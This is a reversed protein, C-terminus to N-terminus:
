SANKLISNLPQAFVGRIMPEFENLSMTPYDKDFSLCDYQECFRLADAYFPHGKIKDRLNRDLGLFHLFYYGQILAHNAVIWHNKESVFPKLLAAGLDAHNFTALTDGVDHLLACVVYEPNEGARHARTATQLSHTLRDVPFGAYDNKLLLLHDIIRDPLSSAHHVFQSHIIEWDGKKSEPFSRFNARALQEPKRWWFISKFIQDFTWSHKM